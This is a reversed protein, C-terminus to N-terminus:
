AEPKKLRFPELQEKTLTSPGEAGMERCHDAVKRPSHKPPCGNPVAYPPLGDIMAEMTDGM